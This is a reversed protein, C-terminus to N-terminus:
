GVCMVTIMDESDAAAAPGRRKLQPRFCLKEVFSVGGHLSWCSEAGACWVLGEASCCALVQSLQLWLLQGAQMLLFAGHKASINATQASM